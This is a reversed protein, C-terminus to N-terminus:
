APNGELSAQNEAAPRRGTRRPRDIRWRQRPDMVLRLWNSLISLSITTLTIVLGPFLSQWWATLLYNRGEAVLLGWSMDPPQVGQGLFSLSSELLIVYALDVAGLTLLTPVLAPAIHRFFIRSRSAGLARAGLVFEKASVALAEARAVRAYAPIRTVALVTVLILFSPQYLYILVVALLLTPFSLMMDTLRMGILDLWGGLAGMVLGLLGGLLTAVLMATIAITLTTVGGVAMRALVSRGLPDAGLVFIPDPSTFPPLNRLSLDVAGAAERLLLGGILTGLLILSLVIAAVVAFADGGLLRVARRLAGEPALESQGSM